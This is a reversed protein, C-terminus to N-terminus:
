CALLVNLPDDHAAAESRWVQAINLELIEFGPAASAKPDPNDNQYQEAELSLDKSTM